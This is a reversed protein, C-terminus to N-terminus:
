TRHHSTGNQSLYRCEYHRRGTHTDCSVTDSSVHQTCILLVPMSVNTTAGLCPICRQEAPNSLVLLLLVLLLLVVMVVVVLLLLLLLVEPCTNTRDTSETSQRSM